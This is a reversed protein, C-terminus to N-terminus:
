GEWELRVFVRHGERRDLKVFGLEQLKDHGRTWDGAMEQDCLYLGHVYQKLFLEDVEALIEDPVKKIEYQRLVSNLAYPLIQVQHVLCRKILMPLEQM